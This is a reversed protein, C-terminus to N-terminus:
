ILGLYSISAIGLATASLGGHLHRQADHGLAERQQPAVRVAAQLEAFALPSSAAFKRAGPASSEHLYQPHVFDM